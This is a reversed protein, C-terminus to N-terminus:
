CNPLAFNRLLWLIWSLSIEKSAISFLSECHLTYMTKQSLLFFLSDFSMGDNCTFNEIWCLFLEQSKNVIHFM